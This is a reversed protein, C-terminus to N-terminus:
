PAAGRVRRTDGEVGELREEREREMEQERKRERGREETDKESTEALGIKRASRGVRGEGM